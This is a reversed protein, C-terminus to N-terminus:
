TYTLQATKCCHLNKIRELHGFGLEFSKLHSRYRELGPFAQTSYGINLIWREWGWPQNLISLGRHLVGSDYRYKRGSHEGQDSVRTLEEPKGLGTRGM